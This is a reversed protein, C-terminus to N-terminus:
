DQLDDNKESVKESIMKINRDCIIWPFFFQSFFIALIPWVIQSNIESNRINSIKVALIIQLVLNAIWIAWTAIWLITIMIYLVSAAILHPAVLIFYFINITFSFIDYSIISAIIFLVATVWFLIALTIAIRVTPKIHRKIEIFKQLDKKSLEIKEEM